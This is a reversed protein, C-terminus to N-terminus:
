SESGEGLAALDALDKLRGSARKNKILAGRGIVPFQLTGLTVVLEQASAEDFSVGDIATLIDIRRPPLGIQYVTGPKVFDIVSVGHSDVPAGWVQLARMVREANEVSPRVLIDIDLTARVVGHASLAHGGVILYEVGADNFEAIMDAFEDFLYPDKTM